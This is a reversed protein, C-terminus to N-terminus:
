KKCEAKEIIMPVIKWQFKRMTICTQPATGLAAFPLAQLANFSPEVGDRAEM